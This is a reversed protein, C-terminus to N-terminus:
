PTHTHSHKHKHLVTHAACIQINKRATAQRVINRQMGNEMRIEAHAPTQTGQQQRESRDTYKYTPFFVTQRSSKYVLSTNRTGLYHQRAVAVLVVLYIHEGCM